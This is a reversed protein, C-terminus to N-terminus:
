AGPARCSDSRSPRSRPPRRRRRRGGPRAIARCCSSGAGLGRWNRQMRTTHGFSASEHRAALAATATRECVGRPPIALYTIPTMASATRTIREDAIRAHVGPFHLQFFLTGNVDTLNKPNSGTFGAYIDKVIVTGAATGDTKWLEVGATGDNATFYLSGASVTLERPVSGFAGPRIDKVLSTGAATGNSRWLEEGNVGDNAAFYLMGKFALPPSTITALTDLPTTALLARGELAEIQPRAAHRERRQPRAIRSRIAVLSLSM